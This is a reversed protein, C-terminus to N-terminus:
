PAPVSQQPRRGLTVNVTKTEKGGRLLQIEIQDGQQKSAVYTSLALSTLMPRGDIKQIIDGGIKLSQGDLKAPVTGGKIGANAAPSGPNVTEILVGKNVPLNLPALDPTISLSSIGLYGTDVTGQRLGPLLKRATDIPVAFGIGVNGGGSGGTEIQSNIGIVEGASDILPGGSNGPNIAADTQIVDNIAFGNLGEISRQKASVVGTTLSFAQGFPNGIAVVPDGVEVDKMSALPLSVLDQGDPNIQLVAIDSSRDAGLIKADVTKDNSFRVTVKKAGDVVHANTLITGKSDIVFGSGTAKGNQSEPAGFINTEKKVVDATIFVVGKSDRQYIERPTMSGGDSVTKVIGGAGQQVLTTTSSGGGIGLVAAAALAAVAGLLGAGGAIFWTSRSSKM